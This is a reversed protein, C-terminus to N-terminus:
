LSRAQFVKPDRLNGYKIYPIALVGVTAFRYLAEMQADFQHVAYGTGSLHCPTHRSIDQKYLLSEGGSPPPM